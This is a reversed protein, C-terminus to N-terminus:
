SGFAGGAVAGFIEDGSAEVEVAVAKAKDAGGLATRSSSMKIGGLSIPSAM